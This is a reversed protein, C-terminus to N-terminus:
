PLATRRVRMFSGARISVQSGNVESRFQLSLTGNTGPLIYGSMFDVSGTTVSDASQWGTDNNAATFARAWTTAGNGQIMGIFSSEIVTGTFNIRLRIGTTAAASLHVVYVEVDYPIDARLEVSMEDVTVWSTDSSNNEQVTSRAVIGGPRDANAFGIIFNGSQPVDLVMVRDHALINDLLPTARTEVDDGGDYKVTAIGNENIIVTAVRLTWKLGLASANEKLAPIMTEATTSIPETM